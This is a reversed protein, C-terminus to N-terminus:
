SIKRIRAGKDHVTLAKRTNVKHTYISADVHVNWPLEAKM